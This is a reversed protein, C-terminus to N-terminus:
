SGQKPIIAYLHFRESSAAEPIEKLDFGLNRISDMIKSHLDPAKSDTFLFEPKHETMLSQVQERTDVFMEHMAVGSRLLSITHCGSLYHITRPRPTLIKAGPANVKLWRAATFFPLSRDSQPGYAQLPTRCKVIAILNHGVNTLALAIFCIVLVRGPELPKDIRHSLWEVIQLIGLALFLYLAPTLFILYRSGATSLLLGMFQIVTLPVLLRDGRRFAVVAGVATVVPVILELVHTKLYVGTLAYSGEPFYGLFATFVVWAQDGFRRSVSDLYTGEAFSVPFSAKYALWTAFPACALVLFIGIWLCRKAPRMDKWSCFLFFAAAPAVGLGNVRIIPLLGTLLGALIVWAARNKSCSASLVANLAVLAFLAFPVDSLTLTSNHLLVHNVAFLGGALFATDPGCLRTIFLYGFGATLLGLLAMLIRYTLFNDGLLYAAGAVILPYGPPVFTHFDGNFVYGRDSALSEGLGLYLASDPTARWSSNIILCFGLVAVVGLVWMRRRTGLGKVVRGIETFGQAPFDRQEPTKLKRHNGAHFHESKM